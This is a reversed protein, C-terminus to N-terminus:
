LMILVDGGSLLFHQRLLQVEMVLLAFGLGILALVLM